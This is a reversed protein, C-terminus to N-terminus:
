RHQDAQRRCLSPRSAALAAAFLGLGLFAPALHVASEYGVAYHVGIAAAYGPLGALLLTWWLWREGPRFGWLAVLLIALGNALLMGGLTARDHAVLPVLNIAAAALAPATTGLFELDEHVFVHTAGITSIVLGAGIFGVGELVLGLQGWLGLRWARDEILMPTPLATPPGLQGHVGMLLLQFLIATVFAHFPDFYGFGLFLFFSVFGATASAVIAVYAWHRGRRVGYWSLAVYLVAIAVMTGALAVRDHTLFPLLRPNVAALEARTLGVFHEDYPLVVRTMAIALAMVSGVLMGSGMLLTWCWSMQTTGPQAGPAAGPQAGPATGPVAGPSIALLADNIRKPLGPGGFVLGSDVSVLDAGARLLDIAHQPEHVGGGAILPVTAGCLRRVARVTDLAAVRAPAGLVRRDASPRVAGDVVIGDGERGATLRRALDAADLDPPVVFFVLRGAEGAAASAAACTARWADAPWAARGCAITFGDVHSALRTILACLAECAAAADEIDGVDLRALVVVGARARMTALRAAAAAGDLGDPPDALAIAEAATDRALLGGARRRSGIPGVEIFGAGFRTLAGTAALAPDIGCGLGMPSPFTREAVVVRLGDPPRMHGLLDILSRGAWTRGLFGVTALSLDRAPRAPLAFLAPRLVTRYSWDPM